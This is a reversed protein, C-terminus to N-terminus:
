RVLIAGSPDIGAQQMQEGARLAEERSAFPGVRVRYYTGKDPIESTVVTATQGALTVRAKLADAEDVSRFSAIQLFLSPAPAEPSSPAPAPTPAPTPAPLPASPVPLHELDPRTPPLPVKELVGYFEFDKPDKPITPPAPTSAVPPCESPAAARTPPPCPADHRLLYVGAAGAVAGLMLGAAFPRFASKRSKRSSDM